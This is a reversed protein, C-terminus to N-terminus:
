KGNRIQKSSEEQALSRSRPNLMEMNKGLLKAFPSPPLAETRAQEPTKGYEINQRISDLIEKHKTISDISAVNVVGHKTLVLKKGENAEHLLKSLEEESELIIEQGSMMKIKYIM